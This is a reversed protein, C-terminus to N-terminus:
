DVGPMWPPPTTFFPLIRQNLGVIFPKGDVQQSGVFLVFDGLLAREAETMGGPKACQGLVADRLRTNWDAFKPPLTVRLLVGVHEVTNLAVVIVFSNVVCGELDLPSDNGVPQLFGNPDNGSAAAHLESFALDGEFNFFAEIDAFQAQAAAPPATAVLALPAALSMVLALAAGIRARACTRRAPNPQATPRDHM